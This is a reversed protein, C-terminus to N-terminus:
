CGTWFISFCDCRIHIQVNKLILPCVYNDHRLIYRSAFNKIDVIKSGDAVNLLINQFNDGKELITPMMSKLRGTTFIPTLKARLNRWRNGNMAFLSDSIPDEKPRSYVGRDVFHNFDTSLVKKVLSADRVLLVPRYYMYVGVFPETTQKYLDHINQGFSTKLLTVSTLNGFPITPKLYPVGLKQWYTYLVFKFYLITTVLLTAVILLM